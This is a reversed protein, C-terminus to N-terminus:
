AHIPLAFAWLFICPTPRNWLHVPVIWVPPADCQLPATPATCALGWGKTNAVAVRGCPVGSGLIESQWTLLGSLKQTRAERTPEEKPGLTPSSIRSKLSSSTHPTVPHQDEITDHAGLNKPPEERAQGERSLISFCHLEQDADQQAM